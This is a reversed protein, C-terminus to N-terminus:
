MTSQWSTTMTNSNGEAKNVGGQAHKPHMTDLADFSRLEIHLHGGNQSDSLGTASEIARVNHQILSTLNNNIAAKFNKLDEQVAGVRGELEDSIDQQADFGDAVWDNLDDILSQVWGELKHFSGAIDEIMNAIREMRTNTKEIKAYAKHLGM